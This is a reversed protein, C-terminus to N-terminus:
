KHLSFEFHRIKLLIMGAIAPTHQLFDQIKVRVLRFSLFINEIKFIWRLVSLSFCRACFLIMNCLGEARKELLRYETHISFFLAHFAM